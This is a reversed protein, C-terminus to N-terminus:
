WGSVDTLKYSAVEVGDNVFGSAEFNWSDGDALTGTSAWADGVKTGNGDYLAYELSVYNMKKGSTNQFTGAVSAIGYEDTSGSENTVVYKQTPAEM